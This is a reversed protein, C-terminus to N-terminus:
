TVTIEKLGIGVAGRRLISEALDMRVIFYKKGNCIIETIVYEEIKERDIVLDNEKKCTNDKELEIRNLFPLYYIMSKKRGKDYFVIREFSIFQDYKNIVNMVLESVLFCPFRVVDTFVMQMHSEVQFLMHKSMQSQKKRELTKRDIVGWWGLPSPPVYNDDVTISFYKM